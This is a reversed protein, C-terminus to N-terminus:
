VALVVRALEITQWAGAVAFFTLFAIVAWYKRPTEARSGTLSRYSFRGSRLCFVLAACVTVTFAVYLILKLM